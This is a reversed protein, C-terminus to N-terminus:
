DRNEINDLATAAIAKVTLHFDRADKANADAPTLESLRRLAEEAARLRQEIGVVYEAVLDFTQPDCRAIHSLNADRDNGRSVTLDPHGDRAVTPTVVACDDQPRSRTAEQGVRRWSCGDFVKWPGPTVDRMGEVIAALRIRGEHQSM